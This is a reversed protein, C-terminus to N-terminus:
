QALKKFPHFEAVIKGHRDIHFTLTGDVTGSFFPYLQESNLTSYDIDPDLRKHNSRLSKIYIKHALQSMNDFRQNISKILSESELELRFSMFPDLSQTIAEIAADQAASPNTSHRKRYIM